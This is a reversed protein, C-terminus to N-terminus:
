QAPENTAAPLSEFYEAVDRMQQPTLRDAVEHMLHAYPSGGRQRKKFLELQLVLYDAHQGALTPYNANRPNDGSGHCEACIPIRESPVGAQAITSGRKRSATNEPVIPTPRAPVMRRYYRALERMSERSLAAAIPEMIGSHRDGSSYALMAAELYEPQQGALNPFASTGRGQGNREHCRGCSESAMRPAAESETLGQLPANGKSVVPESGVLRRYQQADLEPLKQLFAVIAWVEDDRQQAPWAPMGTFKVGHKVIYFLETQKWEHIVPPLYPPHPTMAEAIRPHMVVPSGHCPFCGTEYHGAGKLVLDQDDLDPAKMGVTHTSVSRSMSFNLFWATIPWHGSSASIPMIGSAAVLLGGFGALIGLTGIQLLWRKWGAWGQSPGLLSWINLVVLFLGRIL